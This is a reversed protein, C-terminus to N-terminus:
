PRSVNKNRSALRLPLLAPVREAYAAYASGLRARLESEEAHISALALLLWLISVAWLWPSAVVLCAGFVGTMMGLYRPHRVRAYLGHAILEGSGALESHGVLRRGGFVAESTSLAFVDFAIMAMGIAVFWPAREPRLLDRRFFYLLSDFVGWALFVAVPFAARMHRRWFSVRSHLILWYIPVPIEFALVVVAILRLLKM